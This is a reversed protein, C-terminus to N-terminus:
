GRPSAARRLRDNVAAGLGFDPVTRVAVCGRGGLAADLERLSSYLRQAAERVDGSRSLNRLAVAHRVGDPEPGFGLWGEGPAPFEANIRLRASPAYHSEYSGPAQPRRYGRCPAFTRGMAKELSSQPIGGERFLLPGVEGFGVIASEIGVACSGGDIVADVRGCLDALVHAAETPSVRGSPNASPGVIPGGFASLLSLAVPHSPVRVAVTALGGTVELALDSRTRYPLVLTLPGPWFAEALLRSERNFEVAAEAARTGEFHVILPNDRPRGKAAYVGLVADRSRADAGLGYVTETPFAVLGGSRLIEAAKALGVGDPPLLGTELKEVRTIM